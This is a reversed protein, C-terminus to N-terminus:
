GRAYKVKQTRALVAIGWFLVAYTLVGVFCFFPIEDTFNSILWEKAMGTPTYAVSKQVFKPFATIPYMCGSVYCMSVSVFFHLLVGSVINGSVEFIMINFAAFLVIIPILLEALAFVEYLEVMDTVSVGICTIGLVSLALLMMVIFHAVYECAMQKPISFGRAVLLRSFENNRKSHTIVYPLGVLMLLLILIGCAMSEVMSVGSGSGLEQIEYTESRNFLM